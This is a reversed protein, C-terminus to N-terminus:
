LKILADILGDIVQYNYKFCDLFKGKPEIGIYAYEETQGDTIHIQVTDADDVFTMRLVHEVYGDAEYFLKYTYVHSGHITESSAKYKIGTTRIFKDLDTVFGPFKNEIM